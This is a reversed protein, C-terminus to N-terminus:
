RSNNFKALQEKLEKMEEHLKANEEQLKANAGQLKDNDEQLKDNDEQMKTNRVELADSQAQLEEVRNELKKKDRVLTRERKEADERAQCQQRVIDDANAVYLSEVAEQLYENNEALMRLEEWTEAKFLHAWYDIKFAKDEETALDTRKLNVVRLIFRDSYVHNNKVNMMKYTSYFEPVEPFPTYDLFAIHFVPLVEIYEQGRQLNDFGRCAYSLSREPWNYENGVQMELNILTNDNLMVHIDLIFEKGSIDGALNIPNQIEIKKIDKPDLHLLACILGTLVKKNKQLIFRFMYNNTMKFRIVGTAEQYSRVKQQEM